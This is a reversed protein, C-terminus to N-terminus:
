YMECFYIYKLCHLSSLPPRIMIIVPISHLAQFNLSLFPILVCSFWTNSVIDNVRNRGNNHATRGEAAEMAIFINIETSHISLEWFEAVRTL